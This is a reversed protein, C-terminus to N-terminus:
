CYRFGGAVFSTSVYVLHAPGRRRVYGHHALWVALLSLLSMMAVGVASTEINTIAEDSPM